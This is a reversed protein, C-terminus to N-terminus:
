KPICVECGSRDLKTKCPASLNNHVITHPWCDGAASSACSIDTSSKWTCSGQKCQIIAEDYKCGTASNHHKERAESGEASYLATTILACLFALPGLLKNKTIM